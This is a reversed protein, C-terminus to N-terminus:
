SIEMDLPMAAMPIEAANDPALDEALDPAIDLGIDPLTDGMDMPAAMMPSMPMEAASGTDGLPAIAEVPQEPEAEPTIDMMTASPPAIDPGVKVAENSVRLARFGNQQGLRAHGVVVGDAGEMSVGSIASKPITLLDDPKYGKVSSLPVQLRHLIAQIDAHSAYVNRELATAWDVSGGKTAQSPNAAVAPLSVLMEGQKAGDALDITIRFFRYSVDDLALGLLRTNEIQKRFHYGASWKAGAEEALNTEFAQLVHDLVAECMASDTRTPRRATAEATSVRGTTQVEIVAALLQIDFIAVGKNGGVGELEMILVDGTLRELIQNLGLREEKVSLVKTALHLEDEAAKSIALGFAKAPSMGVGESPPRGAGAKRRIVSLETQENM